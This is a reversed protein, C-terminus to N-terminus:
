LARALRMAEVATASICFSNRARTCARQLAGRAIFFLSSATYILPKVCRMKMVKQPM